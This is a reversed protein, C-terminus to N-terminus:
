PKEANQGLLKNIRNVYAAARAQKKANIHARVALARERLQGKLSDLTTGEEPQEEPSGPLPPVVSEDIPGRLELPEPPLIPPATAEEAEPDNQLWRRCLVYLSAAEQGQGLHVLRDSITAFVPEESLAADHKEAGSHVVGQLSLDLRDRASFVASTDSAHHESRSSVAAGASVLRPAAAQHPQVSM